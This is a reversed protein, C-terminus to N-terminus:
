CSQTHCVQSMVNNLLQSGAL